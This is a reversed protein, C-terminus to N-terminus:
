EISFLEHQSSDTQALMPVRVAFRFERVREGDRTQKEDAGFATLFAPSLKEALFGRISAYVKDFDARSVVQFTVKYDCVPGLDRDEKDTAGFCSVSGEHEESVFDTIMQRMEEYTPASYEEAM